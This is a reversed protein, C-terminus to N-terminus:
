AIKKATALGHQQALTNLAQELVWPDRHGTIRRFKKTCALGDRLSAAADAHGARELWDALTKLGTIGEDQEPRCAARMLKKVDARQEAPLRETVNRLRHTRCHQVPDLSDFLEGIAKRLARSGDRCM